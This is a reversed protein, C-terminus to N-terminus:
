FKVVYVCKCLAFTAFSPFKADKPYLLCTTIYFNNVSIKIQLCQFLYMYLVCFSFVFIHILSMHM